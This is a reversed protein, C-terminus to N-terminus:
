DLKSKFHCVSELPLRTSRYKNIINEDEYGLAIGVIIDEDDPVKVYKRIVDPYKILEYAPISDVGYDKAALMLSMGFGGLDYVSWNTHGKNLTLYVIVPANFLEINARWFKELKPDKSYDGIDKMFDEMNKQGQKSFNTRHGTPMDPYGKIKKENKEVWVKRVQALVEGSAVYVGWPQSNEWSAAKEAVTIIERLINEPIDKKQFNRASHRENMLSKFNYKSKM